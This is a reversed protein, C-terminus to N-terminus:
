ASSKSLDLSYVSRCADVFYKCTQRMQTDHFFINLGKFCGRLVAAARVWTARTASFPNTSVMLINRIPLRQLFLASHAPALATMIKDESTRQRTRRESQESTEDLASCAKRKLSHCPSRGLGLWMKRLRVTNQFDSLSDEMQTQGQAIALPWDVLSDATNITELESEVTIALDSVQIGSWWTNNWNHKGAEPFM